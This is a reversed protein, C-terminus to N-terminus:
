KRVAQMAKEFLGDMRKTSEAIEKLISSLENDGSASAKEAWELYTKAHEENHEAWHELLHRLKESEKM